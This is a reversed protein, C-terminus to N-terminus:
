IEDDVYKWYELGYKEKLLYRKKLNNAIIEFDKQNCFGLKTYTKPRTDGLTEEKHLKFLIKPIGNEFSFVLLHKHGDDVTDTPIWGEYISQTITFKEFVFEDPNDYNFICDFEKNLKLDAYTYMTFVIIENENRKWSIYKQYFENKNRNTFRKIIADQSLKIGKESLYTDSFLFRETKPCDEENRM